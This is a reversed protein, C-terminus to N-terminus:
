FFGFLAIWSQPALFVAIQFLYIQICTSNEIILSFANVVPKPQLLLHILLHTPFCFQLIPSYLISYSNPMKKLIKIDFVHTLNWLAKWPTDCFNAGEQAGWPTMQYVWTPLRKSASLLATASLRSSSAAVALNSWLLLSPSLISSSLALHINVSIFLRSLQHHKAQWLKM